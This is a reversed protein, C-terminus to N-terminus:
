DMHEIRFGISHRRDVSDEIVEFNQVDYESTRLAAQKM